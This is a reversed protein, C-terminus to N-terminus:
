HNLEKMAQDLQKQMIEPAVKKLEQYTLRFSQYGKFRTTANRSGIGELWPGYIVKGDDIRGNLGEVKGNISRRYHGTSAKGKGAEAVSLYVGEPRPRLMQDLRQEGKEVLTQVSRRVADIIPKAKLDFIKGKFEFSLTINM